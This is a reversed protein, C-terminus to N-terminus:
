VRREEMVEFAQRADEECRPRKLGPPPEVRGLRWDRALEMRDAVRGPVENRMLFDYVDFVDVLVGDCEGVPCEGVEEVGDLVSEAEGEEEVSPGAVEKVEQRLVSRASARPKEVQWPEGAEEVFVSNAMEGYWVVAQRSSGEPYGTHSLLYRFLGYVDEHSGRDRLGGFWEVSRFFRYSWEDGERAPEMDAGTAGVIHYHPSWYIYREMGEVDNRLWVWIGYEPEEARYREKGEDTVRCPHAIVSFGRWGKAEALEAAKSRGDWFERETMVEGEPPSVVAHAAQRRWDDPQVYRFGQVRVTARVAAKKAWAGWCDPCTRAGCVRGAFTVEGCSECVAEPYM